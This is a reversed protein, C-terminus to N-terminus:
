FPIGFIMRTQIDDSRDNLGFAAGFSVWFKGTAVSVTPGLYFKEKTYSGKSELGLKFYPLIAYTVGSAYEHETEGDSELEQKIIQNYAVNVNGIDKALVIKGELVNAKSFDDDRIYELYLLTDIFLKDKESIRYRTRIKFGDYEFDSGTKKNSQKFQQYMSIDWNDTLGYEIELWHKWTNINSKNKDPVETTLYYELEWMGKPMTQYEYTWVYARRDAFSNAAVGIILILSFISILVIRKM